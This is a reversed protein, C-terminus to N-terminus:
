TATAADDAGTGHASFHFEGGYFDTVNGIAHEGQMGVATGATLAFAALVVGALRLRKAATLATRRM